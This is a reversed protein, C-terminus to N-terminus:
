DRTEGIRRPRPPGPQPEVGLLLRVQRARELVDAILPFGNPKFYGSAIWISPPEKRAALEHELYATLAAALTNGERNDVLDPKASMEETM